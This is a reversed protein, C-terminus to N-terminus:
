IPQNKPKMVPSFYKEMPAKKLLLKLVRRYIFFSAAVAIIFMVPFGWAAGDQPLRSVIFRAYVLLLLVFILVTVLINFLTAGLIFLFSGAKKNM